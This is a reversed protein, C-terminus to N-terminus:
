QSQRIENLAKQTYYNSVSTKKIHLLITRGDEKLINKVDANTASAVHNKNAILSKIQPETAVTKFDPNTKLYDYSAQFNKLDEVHQPTLKDSRFTATINSPLENFDMVKAPPTPTRPRSSGSIPEDLLGQLIPYRREIAGRAITRSTQQIRNLTQPPTARSSFHPVIAKILPLRTKATPDTFNIPDSQCYAYSNIGGEDFPSLEDPTMFRMLVPNYFRNGRGLPYNGTIDDPSEGNFGLLRSLGSEAPHHGYVTYEFQLRNIGSVTQLLSHAQDTAFLTTESVGAESKRQALPQAQHRFITRQTQQGVETILHGDQYFRETSGGALPAIGTLRNLPDYVYRRLIKLSSVSM